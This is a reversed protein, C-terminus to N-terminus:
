LKCNNYNITILMQNKKVVSTFNNTKSMLQLNHSAITCLSPHCVHLWTFMVQFRLLTYIHSVFIVAQWWYAWGRLVIISKLNDSRTTQKATNIKFQESKHLLISSRQIWFDISVTRILQHIYCRRNNSYDTYHIFKVTHYLKYINKIKNAMNNCFQYWFCAMTNTSQDQTWPQQYLKLLLRCVLLRPLCVTWLMCLRSVVSLPVLSNLRSLTATPEM